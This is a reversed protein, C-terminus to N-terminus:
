SHSGSSGNEELVRVKNLVQSDKIPFPDRFSDDMGLSCTGKPVKFNGVVDGLVALGLDKITDSFPSREGDPKGKKSEWGSNRATNNLTLTKCINSRNVDNLNEVTPPSDPEASM